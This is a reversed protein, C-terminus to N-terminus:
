SLSLHRATASVTTFRRDKVANRGLINILDTKRCTKAIFLRYEDKADGMLKYLCAYRM